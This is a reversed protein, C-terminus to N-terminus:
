RRQLDHVEVCRLDLTVTTQFPKAVSARQLAGKAPRGHRKAALVQIRIEGRFGRREHV